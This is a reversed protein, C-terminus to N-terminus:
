RERLGHRYCFAMYADPAMRNAARDEEIWNQIMRQCELRARAGTAKDRRFGDRTIRAAMAVPLYAKGRKAMRNHFAIRHPTSCFLQAAQGPAPAFPVGCEACRTRHRPDAPDAQRANEPAAHLVASM